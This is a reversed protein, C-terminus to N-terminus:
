IEGSTGTAPDCRGERRDAEVRGKVHGRDRLAGGELDNGTFHVVSLPQIRGLGDRPPAAVFRQESRGRAEAELGKGSNVHPDVNLCVLPINNQHCFNEIQLQWAGADDHLGHNIHVATLPVDLKHSISSLAHLLATSDAGGSFGVIYASVPPLSRLTHLLREATFALPRNSM